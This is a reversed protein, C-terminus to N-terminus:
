TRSFGFQIEKTKYGYGQITTLKKSNMQFIILRYYSYMIIQRMFSVFSYICVAVVTYADNRNCNTLVTLQLQFSFFFIGWDQKYQVPFLSKYFFNSYNKEKYRDLNM